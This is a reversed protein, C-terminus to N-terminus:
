IPVVLMVASDIKGDFRSVAKAIKDQILGELLEYDRPEEPTLSVAKANDRSGVIQYRM